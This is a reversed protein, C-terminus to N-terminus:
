PRKMCSRWVIFTCRTTGTPRKTWCISRTNLLYGKVAHLSPCAIQGSVVADRGSWVADAEAHESPLRPLDGDAQQGLHRHVNRAVWWEQFWAVRGALHLAAPAVQQAAHAQGPDADDAAAVAAADLMRDLRLLLHNRADILALSLRDKGASGLDAQMGGTTTTAPSPHDSPTPAPM